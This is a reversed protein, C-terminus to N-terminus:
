WKTDIWWDPSCPKFLRVEGTQMMLLSIAPYTILISTEIAVLESV